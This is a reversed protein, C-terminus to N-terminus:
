INCLVHGRCRIDVFTGFHTDRIFVQMATTVHGLERSESYPSDDTRTGANIAFDTIDCEATVSGNGDVRRRRMTVRRFVRIISQDHLHSQLSLFLSLFLLSIFSSSFTALMALLYIIHLRYSWNYFCTCRKMFIFAIIVM